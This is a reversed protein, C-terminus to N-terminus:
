WEQGGQCIAAVLVFGRGDCHGGGLGVVRGGVGGQVFWVPIGFGM